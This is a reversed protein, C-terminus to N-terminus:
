KAGTHKALIYSLNISTLAEIFVISCKCVFPEVNNNEKKDLRKNCLLSENGRDDTLGFCVYTYVGSVVISTANMMFHSLKELDLFGASEM